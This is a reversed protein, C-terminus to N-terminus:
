LWYIVTAALVIASLFNAAIKDYRTAVRRCQKIGSAAELHNHRRKGTILVSRTVLEKGNSAM